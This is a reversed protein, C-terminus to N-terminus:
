HGPQPVRPIRGAQDGRGGRGGRRVLLRLWLVTVLFSHCHQRVSPVEDMGRRMLHSVYRQPAVYRLAFLLGLAGVVERERVLAGDDLAGALVDFHAEPSSHLFRHEDGSLPVRWRRALELLKRRAKATIGM